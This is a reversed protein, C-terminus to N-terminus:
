HSGLLCNPNEVIVYRTGFEDILFSGDDQQRVFYGKAVLENKSDYCSMQPNGVINVPKKNENIIQGKEVTVWRVYSCSTLLMGILCIAFYKM